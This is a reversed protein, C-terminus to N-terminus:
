CSAMKEIHPRIDNMQVHQKNRRNSGEAEEAPSSSPDKLAPRPAKESDLM